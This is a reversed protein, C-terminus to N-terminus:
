SMDCQLCNLLTVDSVVKGDRLPLTCPPLSLKPTKWQVAGSSGAVSNPMPVTLEEAKEAGHRRDGTARIIRTAKSGRDHHPDIAM